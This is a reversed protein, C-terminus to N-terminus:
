KKVIKIVVRRNLEQNAAIPNGTADRNAAKPKTDAFAAVSLKEKALGKAMLFRVVNSARAASLEWNSPFQQTAIPSDDTHGEIVIGVNGKEFRKLQTAMKELVPIGNASFRASGVEFFSSSALELEIFQDTENITAFQDFGSDELVLQLQEKLEKADSEVEVKMFGELKLQDALKQFKEPNPNSLSFLIVFFAMLLTITDAFTMLWDDLDGEERAKRPKLQIPAIHQQM